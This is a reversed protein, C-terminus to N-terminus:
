SNIRDSKRPDSAAGAGAALARFPFNLSFELQHDKLFYKSGVKKAMIALDHRNNKACAIKRARLALKIFNEMAEIWTLGKTNIEKIKEKLVVKTEMLQNKKRQYSEPNVITELYAELLRDLKTEAQILETTLRHLEQKIQQKETLRDQELLAFMKSAWKESISVSVIIERFQKELVEARTYGKQCCPGKKKTCHYYIYNVRNNTRPFYFPRCEATISAGCYKCKIFGTFAFNYRPSKVQHHWGREKIVKQVKDFLSKTIIPEHEGEYLEGKYLMMGYYFTRMLMRRLNSDNPYGGSYRNKIGHEYFFRGLRHLSCNGTAYLEFGKKIVPAKEPDIVVTRKNRDSKYGMPPHLCWIGQKIKYRQGRKVNEALNDVYYKAQSFAMNLMFRGQPTNEFWFSPFRLSKLKDLDLLFIIKGGDMSNRALRDPHWSLIGKVEGQKILKLMQEFKKRGPKKATKSETIYDVVDLNEKLAYEKLEELQSAISL